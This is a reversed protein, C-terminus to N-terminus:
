SVAPPLRSKRTGLSAEAIIDSIKSSYGRLFLSYNRHNRSHKASAQAKASQQTRQNCRWGDGLFNRCELIARLDTLEHVLLIAEPGMSLFKVDGDCFGTM